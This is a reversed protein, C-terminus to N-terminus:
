AHPTISKRKPDEAHECPQLSASLKLAIEKAASPLVVVRKRRGDYCKVMIDM